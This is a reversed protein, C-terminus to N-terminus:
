EGKIEQFYISDDANELGDEMDVIIEELMEPTIRLSEWARKDVMPVLSDGSFGFGIAKVLIDSLHVMATQRPASRSLHPQHHYAIPDSLNKPLNWKECLWNGVTAHTFELVENEAEFMSINREQIRKEIDESEKPLELKLVVKGFDHLLGAVSVEEPEPHNLKKAIVGAITACGLSHRWLDVMGRSMMIDFVSTSLVLGKVVNFGLLVLGHTISSIRGPFGYFASNILRLVKASLVQDRGIVKGVDEASKDRSEVMISIKQIVGPLTPLNKLEEIKRRVKDKEISM